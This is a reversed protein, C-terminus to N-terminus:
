WAVHSLTKPKLPDGSEQSLNLRDEEDQERDSTFQRLNHDDYSLNMTRMYMWGWVECSESSERKWGGGGGFFFGAMRRCIKTGM